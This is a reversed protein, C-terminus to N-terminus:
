TWTTSSMSNWSKSYIKQTGAQFLHSQQKRYYSFLWRYQQNKLITSSDTITYEVLISLVNYIGMGANFKYKELVHIGKEQFFKEMEM